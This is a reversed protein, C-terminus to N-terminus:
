APLLFQYPDASISQIEAEELVRGWLACSYMDNRFTGSGQFTDASSGVRMTTDGDDFPAGSLWNDPSLTGGSQLQGNYYVTHTSPQSFTGVIVVEGEGYESITYVSYGFNSDDCWRVRFGTGSVLRLENYRQGVTQNWQMMYQDTSQMGSMHLMYSIYGDRGKLPNYTTSNVTDGNTGGSNNARLCGGRINEDIPHNGASENYVLPKKDILDYVHHGMYGYMYCGILDASLPHIRDIEVPGRPKNRPILVQPDRLMTADISM